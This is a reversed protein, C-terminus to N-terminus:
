SYQAMGGRQIEGLPSNVAFTESLPYGDLTPLLM